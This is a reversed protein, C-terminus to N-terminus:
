KKNDADLLWPSKQLGPRKGNKLKYIRNRAFAMEIEAVGNKIGAQDCATLEYGQYSHYENFKLEIRKITYSGSAELTLAPNHIICFVMDGDSDDSREYAKMIREAAPKCIDSTSFTAQLVMCNGLDACASTATCGVILAILTARAFVPFLGGIGLALQRSRSRFSNSDFM